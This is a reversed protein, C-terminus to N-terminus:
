DDDATAENGDLDGVKKGFLSLRNDDRGAGSNELFGHM